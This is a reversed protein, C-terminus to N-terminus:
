EFKPNFLFHTGDTSEVYVVVAFHEELRHPHFQNLTQPRSGIYRFGAVQRLAHTTPLSHLVVLYESRGVRSLLYEHTGPFSQEVPYRLDPGYASYLGRNFTFGVPIYGDHLQECLTSGMAHGACTVHTNDAWLVIRGDSGVEQVLAMVEDAMYADRSKGGLDPRGMRLGSNLIRLYRELRIRDASTLRDTVSLRTGLASVLTLAEALRSPRAAMAGRLSDMSVALEPDSADAIIKEAATIAIEPHQVDFGRLQVSEGSARNHDRLWEIIQLMEATQWSPYALAELASRQDSTRGQVYENVADIAIAPAELAVVTCGGERVFFQILALKARFLAAAGHSNEGLGIVRAPSFPALARARTMTDAGPAYDGLDIAAAALRRVDSGRPPATRPASRLPRGDVTVSIADIWANGPGQFLFGIEINTPLCESSESVMQHQFVRWKGKSLASPQGIARRGGPSFLIPIVVAGQEAAFGSGSFSVKKVCAEQIFLPTYIPVPEPSRSALWLARRGSRAHASDISMQVDARGEAEIYWNLPLGQPTASEFDLNLFSQSRAQVLSPQISQARGPQGATLLLAISTLAGCAIANLGRM